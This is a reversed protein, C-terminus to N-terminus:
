RRRARTSAGRPNAPANATSQSARVVSRIAETWGQADSEPEFSWVEESQGSGARIRVRNADRAVDVYRRTSPTVELGVKENKHILLSKSTVVISARRNEWGSSRRGADHTFRFEVDDARRVNGEASFRQEQEPSLKSTTRNCAAILAFGAVCLLARRM